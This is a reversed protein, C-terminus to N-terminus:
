TGYRPQLIKLPIQNPIFTVVQTAAEARFSARVLRIEEVMHLGSMEGVCKCVSARETAFSKPCIPGIFGMFTSVVFVLLYYWIYM